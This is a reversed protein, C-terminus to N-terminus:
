SEKGAILTRVVSKVAMTLHVCSPIMASIGMILGFYINRLNATPNQLASVVRETYVSQRAALAEVDAAADFYRILWSSFSFVFLVWLTALTAIVLDISLHGLFRRTTTSTLAKKIIHLTVFFSLSDFLAGLTAVPFQIKFYYVALHGVLLDPFATVMALWYSVDNILVFFIFLAPYFVHAAPRRAVYVGYLLELSTRWREVIPNMTASAVGPGPTM